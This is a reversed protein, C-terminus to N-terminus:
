DRPKLSLSRVKTGVVRCSFGYGAAIIHAPTMEGPAAAPPRQEIRLTGSIWTSQGSHHVKDVTLADAKGLGRRDIARSCRSLRAQDAAVPQVADSAGLAFLMIITIM